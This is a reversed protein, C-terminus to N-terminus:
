ITRTGEEDPAYRKSGDEEISPDPNYTAVMIRPTLPKRTRLAEGPLSFYGCHTGVTVEAVNAHQASTIKTCQVKFFHSLTGLIPWSFADRPIDFM